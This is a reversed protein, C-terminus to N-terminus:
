FLCSSFASGDVVCRLLKIYFAVLKIISDRSFLLSSFFLFAGANNLTYSLGNCGRTKVGLKLPASGCRSCTGYGPWRAETLTLAQRRAAPGIRETAAALLSAMRRRRNSRLQRHSPLVAFKTPLFTLNPHRSNIKPPDPKKFIM